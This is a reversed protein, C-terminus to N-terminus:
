YTRAGRHAHLLMTDNALRVLPETQGDRVQATRFKAMTDNTLRSTLDAQGTMPEAADRALRAVFLQRFWIPSAVLDDTSLRRVYKVLVATESTLLSSGEIIYAGDGFRNGSTGMAYRLTVLDAPLAFTKTFRPDSPTLNSDVLAVTASAFNWNAQMVLDDLTPTILVSYVEAERSGDSLSPVPIRGLKVNAESVLDLLSM